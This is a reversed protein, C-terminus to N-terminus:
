QNHFDLIFVDKKDKKKYDCKHENADHENHHRSKGIINPLHTANKVAINLGDLQQYLRKVNLTAM